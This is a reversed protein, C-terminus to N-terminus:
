EAPKEGVGINMLWYSLTANTAAAREIKAILAANGNTGHIRYYSAITMALTKKAREPEGKEIRHFVNLALVAAFEDQKKLSDLYEQRHAAFDAMDADTMQFKERVYEYEKLLKRQNKMAPQTYSVAWGFSFGLVLGAVVPHTLTRKM